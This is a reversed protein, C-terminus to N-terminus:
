RTFSAGGFKAPDSNDSHNPGLDASSFSSGSFPALRIRIRQDSIGIAKDPTAARNNSVRIRPLSGPMYHGVNFDGTRNWQRAETGVVGGAMTKNVSVVSTHNEIWRKLSTENGTQSGVYPNDQKFEWIRYVDVGGHGFVEDEENGPDIFDDFESGHIIDTGHGGFLKIYGDLSRWGSGVESLDIVDPGNGGRVEIQDIQETTVYNSGWWSIEQNAANKISVAYSGYRPAGKAIRVTEGGNGITITLKHSADFDVDAAFCTTTYNCSFFISTVVALTSRLFSRFDTKMNKGQSNPGSNPHAFPIVRTGLLAVRFDDAFGV